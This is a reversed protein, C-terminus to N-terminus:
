SEKATNALAEEVGKAIKEDLEKNNLYNTALSVALGVVPVVIKVVKMLKDNM